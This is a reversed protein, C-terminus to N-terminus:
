RGRIKLLEVACFTLTLTKGDHMTVTVTDQRAKRLLGNLTEHWNNRIETM